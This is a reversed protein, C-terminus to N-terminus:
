TWRRIRWAGGTRVGGGDCRNKKEKRKKIFIDEM